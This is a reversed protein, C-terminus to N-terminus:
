CLGQRAAWLQECIEDGNSKVDKWMIKLDTGEIDWLDTDKSSFDGRKDVKRTIYCLQMAVDFGERWWTRTM